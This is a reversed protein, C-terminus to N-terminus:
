FSSVWLLSETSTPIAVRVCLESLTTYISILLCIYIVRRMFFAFFFNLFINVFFFSYFCYVNFYIISSFGLQNISQPPRYLNFESECKRIFGADLPSCVSIKTDFMAYVGCQVKLFFCLCCCFCSSPYTIRRVVKVNPFISKTM